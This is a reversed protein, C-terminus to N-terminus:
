TLAPGRRPLAAISRDTEEARDLRPKLEVVDDRPYAVDKLLTGLRRRLQGFWAGAPRFFTSLLFFAAFWSCPRRHARRM